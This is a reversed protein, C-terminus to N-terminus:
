PNPVQWGGYLYGQDVLTKRLVNEKGNYTALARAATPSLPRQVRFVGGDAFIIGLGHPHHASDTTWDTTVLTVFEEISVDQNQHWATGLRHLEV